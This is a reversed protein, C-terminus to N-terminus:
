SCRTHAKVGGGGGGRMEEDNMEKKEMAGEDDMIKQKKTAFELDTANDQFRFWNTLLLFQLCDVCTGEEKKWFKVRPKVSSPSTCPTYKCPLLSM